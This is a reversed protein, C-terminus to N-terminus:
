ANANTAGAGAAADTEVPATWDKPITLLAEDAGVPLPLKLQKLLPIFNQTVAGYSAARQAAAAQAELAIIEKKKVEIQQAFGVLVEDKIQLLNLIESAAADVIETRREEAQRILSNRIDLPLAGFDAARQEVNKDALRLLAAASPIATIRTATNSM